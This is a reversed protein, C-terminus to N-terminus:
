CARPHRAPAMAASPTRQYEAQADRVAIAPTIPLVSLARAQIARDMFLTPDVGLDLRGSAALMAIEGLSIDSCALSGDAAAREITRAARGSLREPAIADFVIAHTDLLIM